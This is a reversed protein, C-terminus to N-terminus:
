VIEYDGLKVTEVAAAYDRTNSSWNQTIKGHENKYWSNCAPDAWVTKDLDAQIQTNFATQAASTPVMASGGAQDLAALAKIMYEVQRELMFTISNHGLNTNPGYLVFLNPFDTVTIGLYSEPYDQWVTNLHQGSRGEIDVSWKWGTTEFGTAFAIV